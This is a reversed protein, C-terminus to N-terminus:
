QLSSRLLPRGPEEQKRGESEGIARIINEMVADVQQRTPDDPDTGPGRILYPRGEDAAKRIAPDLPIVGLFPVNMEAAVRRGGGSGFLDIAGGCHPCVMGSMNEIIGIVPLGITRAFTVAKKIDLIAVDQPTTVIVAGAINPALQAVTLAEDGTGPPLDVVLYDLEGWEVDELFQRIVGAKMPGRWIVASSEEPLLFAISVVALNGTGAVPQIHKEDYSTMHRGELGLIEPIDPGHIDLDLLGTQFGHNAFAFALNAAVTTKGVGGKGSLVLVVHRVPIDVRDPPAHQPAHPTPAPAPSPEAM